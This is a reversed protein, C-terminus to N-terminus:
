YANSTMVYIFHFNAGMPIFNLLLSLSHIIGFKMGASKILEKDESRKAKRLEFMYKTTLPFVMAYNLLCPAFSLVLDLGPSMLTSLSREPNQKM